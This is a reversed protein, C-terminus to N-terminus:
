DRRFRVTARSPDDNVVVADATEEPRDAALYLQQGPLYRTRYRRETEAASGFIQADRERARRVIEDPGVAVFIRVEWAARIEPRALFLGDVILIGDEPVPQPEVVAPRDTRLDFVSTRCRRRGTPGDPGLPDLLESRLAAYDYTDEYYGHPSDAGQLYREARPRHFSDVSARIVERRGGRLVAALEDALTTKGAADPGDIGVRVPHPVQRGKVLAALQRLLTTREAGAGAPVDRGPAAGTPSSTM